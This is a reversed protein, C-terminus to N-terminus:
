KFERQNQIDKDKDYYLWVEGLSSAGMLNSETQMQTYFNSDDKEMQSLNEESHRGWDRDSFPEQTRLSSTKNPLEQLLPVQSKLGEEFYNGGGRECQQGPEGGCFQLQQTQSIHDERSGYDEVPSIFGENADTDTPSSNVNCGESDQQSPRLNGATTIQFPVSNQAADSGQLFSKYTCIDSDGEHYDSKDPDSSVEASCPPTQPLIDKSFFELDRLSCHWEVAKAQSAVVRDYIFMGPAEDSSPSNGLSRPLTLPGESQTTDSASELYSECLDSDPGSILPKEFHAEQNECKEQFKQFTISDELSELSTVNDKRVGLDKEELPESTSCSEKGDAWGETVNRADESNVSSLTFLSGEDSDYNTDLEYQTDSPAHKQVPEQNAPPIHLGRYEPPIASPSSDTDGPDSLTASSNCTSPEEEARAAKLRQQQASLLSICTSVQMEKSLGLPFQETGEREESEGTRQAKTHTQMKSLVATVERSLPPDLENSNKHISGSVMQSRGALMPIGVSHEGLFNDQAVAAYNIGLIDNRYTHDQGASAQPNNGANQMGQLVSWAASDNPVMNNERSGAGTHGRGQEERQWSGPEKRSMELTRDAIVAARPSVEMGLFSDQNEWLNPDHRTQRLDVRPHQINEGSYFGENSYASDSGPSRDRCRQQWLRDVYPRTLAGLCFAVFFTIFVALCIALSLDQSTAEKRGAAQEDRPKRAWRSPQGQQESTDSSAYAKAGLTSFRMYMGEQHREDESRTLSKVHSPSAHRIRTERSARSRPAWPHAEENEISRNCIVNWKKRWSESIFNQFDTVSNDCQWQNDALNAELHPHELAITMMPLITTLANDSLDVVQLKKLDKFAGPHIRFIKNSKLYLKELQLCNHFDSVGIQLIKNFSLDLSQLSKLKWLGKPIDSLKNRQLILLKLFLLGNRLNSRQRKMSSSKPNPLALLIAHSANNSLTLIELAHLHARPNVTIKSILSNSLDLHKINWEKKTSFQLLVRFFNYNVDVTAATQSIDVSTDPKGTFSCNTLLYGNWQCVSNFLISSKRSPNTMTGPFYLGIAIAIVRFCLNKM